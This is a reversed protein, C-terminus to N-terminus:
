WAYDIVELFTDIKANIVAFIRKEAVAQTEEFALPAQTLLRGSRQTYREEHLLIEFDDCAYALWQSNIMLQIAVNLGATALKERYLGNVTEVLVNELIKKLLDDIENSQQIFGNSFRYFHLILHKAEACIAPVGSSFPFNFPFPKYPNVRASSILESPITLSEQAVTLADNDGVEMPCFTGNGSIEEDAIINRMYEGYQSRALEGFRDLLTFLLDNLHLGAYGYMQMTQIFSNISIKMELFMEPKSCERLSDVMHQGMKNTAVDWLAEVSSRSRFDQTATMVTAEIVFFGAITRIYKEFQKVDGNLSFSAKIVQDAQM